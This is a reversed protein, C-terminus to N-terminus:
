SYVSSWIDFPGASGSVFASSQLLAKNYSHGYMDWSTSKMHDSFSDYFVSRSNAVQSVDKFTQYAATVYMDAAQDTNWVALDSLSQTNEIELSDHCSMVSLSMISVFAIRIYTHKMTKM